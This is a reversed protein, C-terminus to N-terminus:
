NDATHFRIKKQNQHENFVKNLVSLCTHQATYNRGFNEDSNYESGTKKTIILIGTLAVHRSM